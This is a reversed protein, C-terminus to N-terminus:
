SPRAFGRPAARSEAAGLPRPHQGLSTLDTGSSSPTHPRSSLCHGRRLAPLLGAKHSFHSAERPHFVLSPGLVLPHTATKGPTKLLVASPQVGSVTDM